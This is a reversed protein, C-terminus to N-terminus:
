DNLHKLWCACCIFLLCGLPVGLSLSLILTLKSHSSTSPCEYARHAANWSVGSCGYLREICENLTMVQRTNSFAM